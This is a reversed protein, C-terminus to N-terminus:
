TRSISHVRHPSDVVRVCTHNLSGKGSVIQSIPFYALYKTVVEHCNNQAQQLSMTTSQHSSSM